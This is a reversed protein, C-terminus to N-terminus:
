HGSCRGGEARSGRITTEDYVYLPTGHRRALAVLDVGGVTLHGAPTTGTTIPWLM